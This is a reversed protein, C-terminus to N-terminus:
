QAKGELVRKSSLPEVGKYPICRDERWSIHSRVIWRGEPFADEHNQYWKYCGLGLGMALLYQGRQVKGELSGRLTKFRSLNGCRELSHM